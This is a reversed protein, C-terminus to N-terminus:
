YSRGYLIWVSAPQGSEICSKGSIDGWREQDRPICLSKAKGSLAKADHDAGDFHEKTRRKINEEVENTNASPCVVLKGETLAQIFDDWETAIVVNDDMEKKARAYLTDHIDVLLDNIITEVDDLSASVKEMTDRRCYRMTGNALDRPGIEIRVPVGELEYQNFKWGPKKASDDIKVRVGGVRLRDGVSQCLGVIQQRQSEDKFIIPIIVVQIIAMKPPCVLGRDDSHNMITAGISRTSLGWSNQWPISKISAGDEGSQEFKIDFMKGFNQGLQHSTGGQMSRGSGPIYGEVTTTVEGGPFKELDTKYGPITPIACIERYTDAYLELIQWVEEMAEEFTAFATHGEQWLFERTRLFPTPNKFEWRVVNCWQNVKLPLDQHSRIWKKFLPYIITESTPRVAIPVELDSKGSRTVWAVEPTFGEVHDKETMLAAESVFLPFYCEQVGYSTIRENMYKRITDWMYFSSPRLVYCGSIDTYDILKSKVVLESYWEGFDEYKKHTMGEKTKGKQDKNKKKPQKKKQKKKNGKGKGENKAKAVPKAAEGEGDFNTYHWEIGCSEVFKQADAPSIGVTATNVCPHLNLFKANKLAEDVYVTTVKEKDNFVALPTVCGGEVGLVQTLDKSDRLTAGAGIAKGVTKWDVQPRDHAFVFLWRNQSKKKKKFLNKCLVGPLHGAVKQHEVSTMVAEHTIQQFKIGQSTLAELTSQHIPLWTNDCKQGTAKAVPKAEEVNEDINTQLFGILEDIQNLLSM